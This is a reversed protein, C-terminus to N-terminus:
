LSFIMFPVGRSFTNFESGIFGRGGGIFDGGMFGGIFDVGMFGGIFDGGMFGGIFDGGM